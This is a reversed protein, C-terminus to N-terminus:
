KLPYKTVASVLDGGLYLSNHVEEIAGAKAFFAPSPLEIRQFLPELAMLTAPRLPSIQQLYHFLLEM